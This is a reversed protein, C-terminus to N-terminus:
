DLLGRDCLPAPARHLDSFGNSFFLGPQSARSKGGLFGCSPSDYTIAPGWFADM